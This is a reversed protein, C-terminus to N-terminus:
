LILNKTLFHDAFHVGMASKCSKILRISVEGPGAAKNNDMSDIVSYIEKRTVTRFIFDFIIFKDPYKCAFDSCGNFVGLNGFSRILCNFINKTKRSIEGSDLRIENVM